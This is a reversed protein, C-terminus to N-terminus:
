GEPRAKTTRLCGTSRGAAALLPCNDHRGVDGGAAHGREPAGPHGRVRQQEPSLSEWSDRVRILLAAARGKGTLGLVPRADITPPM